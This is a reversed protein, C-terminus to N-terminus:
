SIVDLENFTHIVCVDGICMVRSLLQRKYV